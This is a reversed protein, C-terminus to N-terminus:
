RGSLINFQKDDLKESLTKQYVCPFSLLSEAGGSPSVLCNFMNIPQSLHLTSHSRYSASFLSAIFGATAHLSFYGLGLGGKRLSLQVQWADNSADVGTCLCFMRGVGEDFVALANKIILSTPTARMLHALKCFAGCLCLLILAVQPDILGVEELQSMIMSQILVLMM